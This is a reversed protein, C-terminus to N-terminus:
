KGVDEVLYARLDNLHGVSVDHAALMIKELRIPGRTCPKTQLCLEDLSVIFQKVSSSFHTPQILM